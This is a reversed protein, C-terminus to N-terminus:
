KCSIYVKEAFMEGFGGDPLVEERSFKSLYQQQVISPGTNRDVVAECQPSGEALAVPAKEDLTFAVFYEPDYVSLRIRGATAPMPKELLVTYRLVLRGDKLEIGSDSSTTFSGRTAGDTAFTFFDNEKLSQMYFDELPKLEEPTYAGDGNTDLGIVESASHLDDFVWVHRVGRFSRDPGIIIETKVSVFVHPHAAAPPALWLAALLGPLAARSLTRLSAIVGM